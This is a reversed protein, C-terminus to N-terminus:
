SRLDRAGVLAHHSVIAGALVAANLLPLISAAPM